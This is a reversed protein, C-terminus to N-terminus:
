PNGGLACLYLVLTLYNVTLPNLAASLPLLSNCQPSHACYDTQNVRGYVGNFNLVVLGELWSVM